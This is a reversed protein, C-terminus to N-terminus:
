VTNLNNKFVLLCKGLKESIKLREADLEALRRKEASDRVSEITSKHAVMQAKMDELHKSKLGSEKEQM